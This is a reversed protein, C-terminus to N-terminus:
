AGHQREEKMRKEMERILDRYEAAREYAEQEIAEQLKARLHLIEHQAEKINEGAYRPVRGGHLSGGHIRRLIPELQKQFTRYCESCGIRGSKQFEEYSMGCNSCTLTPEERETKGAQLSRFVSQLFENAPMNKKEESPVYFLDSANMACHECLNREMRGEPGIQVIHVTAERKGCEDCLM